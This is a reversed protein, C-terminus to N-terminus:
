AIVPRISRLAQLARLPLVLSRVPWLSPLACRVALSGRGRVAIPTAGRRACAPEVAAGKRAKRAKRAKRDITGQTRSANAIDAGASACPLLWDCLFFPEPGFGGLRFSRTTGVTAEDLPPAGSAQSSSALRRSGPPTDTPTEAICQLPLPSLSTLAGM